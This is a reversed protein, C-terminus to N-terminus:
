NRGNARGIEDRDNVDGGCLSRLVGPLPRDIEGAHLAHVGAPLIVIKGQGAKAHGLLVDELVLGVIEGTVLHGADVARVNIRHGAVVAERRHDQERQLAEAEASRVLRQVEDLGAADLEAAFLDSSCVDSSWDSIRLDYATKQM